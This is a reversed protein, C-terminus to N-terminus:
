DDCKRECNEDESAPLNRQRLCKIKTGKMGNRKVGEFHRGLDSSM